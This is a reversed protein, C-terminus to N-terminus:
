DSTPQSGNEANGQSEGTDVLANVITFLEDLTLDKMPNKLESPKPFPEGSSDVWNWSLVSGLATDAIERTLDMNSAGDEGRAASSMAMLKFGTEADIKKIVIYGDPYQVDPTDVRKTDKRVPM